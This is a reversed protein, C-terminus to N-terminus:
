CSCSWTMKGRHEANFITGTLTELHSWFLDHDAGLDDATHLDIGDAHAYDGDRAGDIMDGYDMHWREAFQRLWSESEAATCVVRSTPPGDVAPCTWEHRLGTITNPLLFMYFRDGKAVWDHMFPDVVGMHTGLQRSAVMDTTGFIIGISQGPYLRPEGCVVPMVAIHVADRGADETLKKGILQLTDSM